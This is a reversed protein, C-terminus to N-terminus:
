KHKKKAATLFGFFLPHPKKINSEFEGHFQCAIFFDCEPREVIEVLNDETYASIKLGVEQLLNKYKNNFVYRHRHRESIKSSKYLNKALTGEELLSSYSGLRMTGGLNKGLTIKQGEKDWQSLKYIVPNSTKPNFETSDADPYISRLADIIVLQMGLCMGLFPINNEKAYRIAQMKGDIARKGFGGPIFIGDMNKLEDLNLNEADLIHIKAHVMNHIAAHQIAEEVSKYADKCKIYKGILAISIEPLNENLRSVYKKLFSLDDKREKLNFIELVRKCIGEKEYELMAHYVSDADIAAFINEKTLNSLLALKEKWNEENNREMRCFLLDTQIGYSLLNRVSHQIPKTKWEEAKALFPMLAVHACLVNSQSLKIQRITELIAINEIDGVTGGIECILFDFNNTNEFIINKLESTFHPVVQVTKGNYVGKRENNILKKYISGATIYNYKSTLSGGLREYHGLDLDAEMGDSTVFVEGHELPSLTGPDSNLYPDIKKLITKYGKALLLGSLISACIGKGLSSVVGGTVFITKLDKKEFM